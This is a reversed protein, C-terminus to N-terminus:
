GLVLVAVLRDVPFVEELLHEPIGHDQYEDGGLEAGAEDPLAHHQPEHGEEFFHVPNLM